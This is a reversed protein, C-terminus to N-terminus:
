LGRTILALILFSLASGILGIVWWIIRGHNALQQEVMKRWEHIRAFEVDHKQIKDHTDENSM